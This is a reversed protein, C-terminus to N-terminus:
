VNFLISIKKNKVEEQLLDAGAGRSFFLQGEVPEGPLPSVPSQHRGPFQLLLRVVAGCYTAPHCIKNQDSTGAGRAPSLRCHGEVDGSRFLM